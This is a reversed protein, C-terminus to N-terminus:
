AVWCRHCDIESDLPTGSILHDALHRALWPALLAGKSGLGNCVFLGRLEPHPGLYPRTDRTCPRIGARHGIVETEVSRVLCGRFGELLETRGAESPHPPRDGREYTSGIRYRDAGLPLLWKRHHYLGAPLDLDPARVTLIEGKVSRFPLWRFFPNTTVAAGECFVVAGFTEDCYRWGTGEKELAAHDFTSDEHAREAALRERMAALLLPLDVFGAGHILFSGHGDRIVEPGRGPAELRGLFGRYDPEDWRRAHNEIDREDLCYRRISFDHLCELGLAVELGRYSERARPLLQDVRWTRALRKGTVPNLVGAATEWAGGGTGIMRVPAGAARLEWALHCAALGHGVILIPGSKM